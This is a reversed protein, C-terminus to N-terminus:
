RWMCDCSNFIGAEWDVSPIKNSCTNFDKCSQLDKNNRSNSLHRHRTSVKAVVFVTKKQQYFTLSSFLLPLWPYSFLISSSLLFFLTFNQPPNTRNWLESKYTGSGRTISCRRSKKEPVDGYAWCTFRDPHWAWNTSEHISSFSAPVTTRPLTSTADPHLSSVALFNAPQFEQPGDTLPGSTSTKFSTPSTNMPIGFDMKCACGTKTGLHLWSHSQLRM